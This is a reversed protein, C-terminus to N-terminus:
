VKGIPSWGEREAQSIEGGEREMVPGYAQEYLLPDLQREYKCVILWAEMREDQTWSEKAALAHGCGSDRQNFGAGNREKARDGDCDCLATLMRRVVSELADIEGRKWGDRATGDSGKEQWVVWWRGKRDRRIWIGKGRLEERAERWARWFAENAVAAWAMGRGRVWRRWDLGWWMPDRVAAREPRRRYSAAAGNAM